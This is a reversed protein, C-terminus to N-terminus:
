SVHPSFGSGEWTLLQPFSSYSSMKDGASDPPSVLFEAQQLALPCCINVHIHGERLISVVLLSNLIKKHSLTSYKELQIVHHM